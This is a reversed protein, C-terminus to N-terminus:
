VDIVKPPRPYWLNLDSHTDLTVPGLRLTYPTENACHYTAEVGAIEWQGEEPGSLLLSHPFSQPHGTLELVEGPGASGQVKDFELPFGNIAYKPAGPLGANGTHIKLHFTDLRPM